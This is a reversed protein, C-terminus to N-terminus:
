FGRMKSLSQNAESVRDRDNAAAILEEFSFEIFRGDSDALATGNYTLILGTEDRNTIWQGDRLLASRMRSEIFEPEVGPPALATFSRLDLTTLLPEIGDIVTDADYNLPIRYTGIIEYKDDVFSQYTKDVADDVSHGQAVYSYALRKAQDTIKAFSSQGGQMAMTVQFEAFQSDVAEDVTKVDDKDLGTKLESTKIHSIRALAEATPRDVGSGIVLAAPTLDKSMQNFVTPWHKGWQESMSQILDASKEDPATNIQASLGRAYSDPLLNENFIGLRKKEAIVMQAYTDPDEEIGVFAEAIDPNHKQLYSGPDTQREKVIGSISNQLMGFRKQDNAFGAKSAKKQPNRSNILRNIEDPTATTAYKIDDGLSKSAELERFLKEGKTKGYARVYDSKPPADFDLGSVYASVADKHQDAVVSKLLADGQELKTKARRLMDAKQDSPIMKVLMNKKDSLLEVQKAPDKMGVFATAYDVAVKKKLETGKLQDIYGNEVAADIALSNADLIAAREDPDTATLGIERNTDLTTTLVSLGHDKERRLAKEQVQFRGRQIDVDTDTIFQNRLGSRSIMESAKSRAKEMRETYREEFTQYDSDNDFEHSAAIQEQALLSKAKAYDQRDKREQFGQSIDFVTDALQKTAQEVQGPNYRTFQRRNQPIDRRGLSTEDPLKPM